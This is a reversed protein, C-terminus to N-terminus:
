GEKLREAMSQEVADILEAAKVPKTLYRRFGAALGREVDLPM